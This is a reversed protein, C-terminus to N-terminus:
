ASLMHEPLILEAKVTVDEDSGNMVQLSTSRTAGPAMDIFLPSPLLTLAVMGRMSPAITPDGEYKVTKRLNPGRRGDVFLNGEIQYNGSPLVQAVKQRLHVKVGPMIMIETLKVDGLKKWHTGDQGSVRVFPPLAHFRGARTRSTSTVTDCRRNARGLSQFSLGVDTVAIEHPMPTSQVELIIPVMVQM